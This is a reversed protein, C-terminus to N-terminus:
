DSGTRKGGTYKWQKNEHNAGEGAFAKLPAKTWGLSVLTPRFIEVLIFALLFRLLGLRLFWGCLISAFQRIVGILLISEAWIWGFGPFLQKFPLQREKIIKLLDEQNLQKSPLQNRKNIRLLNKSVSQLPARKTVSSARLLHILVKLWFRSLNQLLSLYRVANVGARSAWKLWSVRCGVSWVHDSWINYMNYWGKHCIVVNQDNNPSGGSRSKLARSFHWVIGVLPLLWAVQMSSMLGYAAM